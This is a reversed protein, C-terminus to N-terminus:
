AVLFSLIRGQIIREFIKSFVSLVSIPRYNGFKTPDDAKFVPTVRAVKMFDPFHGAELCVNMLRSLPASIESAASRVVSPSIDDHGPGKSPDLGLCLSEIERPDTPFMFLSRPSTPGLYDTFSGSSPVRVKSALSSGVESYFGCFSDAINQDGTIPTGNDDFTRCPAASKGSRGIFDHLVGWAKRSDKGAENLRQAFFARKMDKRRRNVESSLGHLLALDARSLGGPHKLNRAYLRDRQKMLGLLEADNLWPKKIDIGSIKVRKQPFFKNYGDRFENRFRAADEAVSEVRPAFSEGWEKVWKRFNEKGKEGIVRRLTYQPRGEHPVETGGFFAFIPFHDSISSLVLGSSIPFTIDTSFVNDILTASKSTIRTPLSILHHLGVNNVLGLFEGTASHQLSKILDLNFDGMLNLRKGQLKALIVGMKDLFLALNSGPPRYVVGIFLSEGKLVVEIFISELVGEEFIDVDTRRKFTMDSRLYIAVGGWSKKKRSNSVLIYDELTAHKASVENLHTETLGIIDFKCDLTEMLTSLEDKKKPLGNINLSLLSLRVSNNKFFDKKFKCFQSMDYYRCGGLTSNYGALTRKLEEDLPNFRLKKAKELHGRTPSFCSIADRYERNNAIHNFPFVESLCRKCIFDSNGDVTHRQGKGCVGCVSAVLGGLGVGPRSPLLSVSGAAPLTSWCDSDAAPLTSGFTSDAAPLTSEQMSWSGPLGVGPLSVSPGVRRIVVGVRGGPLLSSVYGGSPCPPFPQAMPLPSFRGYGDSSDM